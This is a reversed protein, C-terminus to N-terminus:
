EHEGCKEATATLLCWFPIEILEGGSGELDKGM